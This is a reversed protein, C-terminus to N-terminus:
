ILEIGIVTDLAVGLLGVIANLTLDVLLFDPISDWGRSLSLIRGSPFHIRMTHRGEDREEQLEGNEEGDGAESHGASTDNWNGRGEGGDGLHLFVVRMGLVGKSVINLIRDGAVVLGLHLGTVAVNDLALVRQVIGITVTANHIVGGIGDISEIGDHATLRENGGDSSGSSNNGSGCWNDTGSGQGSGGQGSSSGEGISSGWCGDHLGSRQDGGSWGDDLGLESRRKDRVGILSDGGEM